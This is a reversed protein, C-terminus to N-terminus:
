VDKAPIRTESDEIKRKITRKKKELILRKKNEIPKEILDFNGDDWNLQSQMILSALDQEPLETNFSNEEIIEQKITPEEIPFMPVERAENKKPLIKALKAVSPFVIREVKRVSDARDKFENIVFTRKVDKEFKELLLKQNEV